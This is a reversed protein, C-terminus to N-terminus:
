KKKRSKYFIYAGLGALIAALGLFLNKTNSGGLGGKGGDSQGETMLDDPMAQGIPAGLTENGPRIGSDAQNLLNKTAVVRLSQVAKFFAQSYKTYYDKHASCTFLVAIRDKITALYRTFYNPVESSMHLGDVWAQDNINVKKPPYVVKSVKGAAGKYSTIQPTNLHSIYADFSDTPGVEKATLVIIAEKSAKDAEARCIWETNELNCKWNDPLEFSLYSNRFVKANAKQSGFVVLASLLSIIFCLKKFNEKHSCTLSNTYKVICDKTEAGEM